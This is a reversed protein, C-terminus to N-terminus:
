KAPPRSACSSFFNFFPCTMFYKQYLNNNLYIIRRLYSSFVFYVTHVQMITFFSPIKISPIIHRLALNLRSKHFICKLSWSRPVCMPICVFVITYKGCYHPFYIPMKNDPKKMENNEFFTWSSRTVNWLFRSRIYNCQM